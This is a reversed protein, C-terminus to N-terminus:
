KMQAKVGLKELGETFRAIAEENRDQKRLQDGEACLKTAEENQTKKLAQQCQDSLKTAQEKGGASAAPIVGLSLTIAVLIPLAAKKM